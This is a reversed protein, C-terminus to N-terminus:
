SEKGPLLFCESAGGVGVRRMSKSKGLKKCLKAIKTAVIYARASMEFLVSFCFLVARRGGMRQQVNACM